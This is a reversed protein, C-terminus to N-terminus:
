PLLVYVAWSLYLINFILQILDGTKSIQRPYEDSFIRFMELLSVVLLIMSTVFVFVATPSDVKIFQTEAKWLQYPLFPILLMLFFRMKNM